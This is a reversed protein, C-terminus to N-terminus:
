HMDFRRDSPCADSCYEIVYLPAIRGEIMQPGPILSSLQACRSTDPFYTGFGLAGLPAPAAGGLTSTQGSTVSSSIVVLMAPTAQFGNLRGTRTEPPRWPLNSGFFGSSLPVALMRNRSPCTTFTSRALRGAFELWNMPLAEWIRVGPM